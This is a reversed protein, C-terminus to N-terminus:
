EVVLPDVPSAGAASRCDSQQGSRACITYALRQRKAAYDVANNKWCQVTAFGAALCRRTVLFSWMLVFPISADRFLMAPVGCSASESAVKIAQSHRVHHNLSDKLCAFTLM